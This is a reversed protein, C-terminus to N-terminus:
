ACLAEELSEALSCVEDRTREVSLTIRLRAHGEPVTPPRIPRVDFGRRQLFAAAANTRQAEGLEIPLIQTNDGLLRRAGAALRQRAFTTLAALKERRWPERRVLKLACRVATAMLPAPATSYVFPRATQILYDRVLKPLCVLAGAAGLAKGCTHVSILDPIRLDETLGGGRAGFVGTAHAEDVVLVADHREAIQALEVLPARDGDMSYVSEVAIFIGRAGRQRAHKLADEFAQADNHRVARKGAFSARVGEKVSAHILEDYLVVDHRSPLASFISVNADYGSGFYLASEAGFFQAAEMELAEHEAHNGRLLRSGGSGVRADDTTLANAVASLLDPHQSLGLYDNSVFDIGDATTLTRSLSSAELESLKHSLRELLAKM